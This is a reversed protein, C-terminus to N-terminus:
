VAGLGSVLYVYHALVTAGYVYLHLPGLTVVGSQVVYVSLSRYSLQISRRDVSCSTMPEVGILDVLPTHGLPLADTKPVSMRPEIGLVGALNFIKEWFFLLNVVYVFTTYQYAYISFCKMFCRICLRNRTSIATTTIHVAISITSNM